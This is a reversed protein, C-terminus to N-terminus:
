YRTTWLVDLGGIGADGYVTELVWHRGLRYLVHAENTNGYETVGFVHVYGVYIRDTVNTGVEVKTAFGGAQAPTLSGPVPTTGQGQLQAQSVRQVRLVDIPLSPALRQALAGLLATSVASVASETIDSGSGPPAGAEGTLVLAVLQPQTYGPPESSFTLRPARAPGHVELAVLVDPFQRTLRLDLTPNAPPGDLWLVRARDITYRNGFLAISGYGAQIQGAMVTAADEARVVLNANVRVDVDKGRLEFDRVDATLRLREPLRAPAARPRAAAADRADVFRVEPLPSLRQLERQRELRPLRLRGGRVRLGLDFEGGKLAGRLTAEATVTAGPLVLVGVPVDTLGARADLATPTWGRLTVTGALRVEGGGDARGRLRTLTLRGPALRARVELGRLIPLGLMGLAGRTVALDGRWVPQAVTGGASLRATLLGGLEHLDPSIQRLFRLDLGQAELRAALAGAGGRGAAVAARVVGGGLQDAMASARLGGPDLSGEVTITAFPVGEIVPHLATLRVQAAPHALTGTVRADATAYGALRGLRPWATGLAALDVRPLTADAVVGADRLAAGPRALLADLGTLLRARADALHTRGLTVTATADVARPDAAARVFVAVGALGGVRGDRLLGTVRAAPRALDGGLHARLDLTGGTLRARARAAAPLAAVPLADVALDLRVPGASALRPAGRRRLRVPVRADVTVAGGAALRVAGTGVLERAGLRLHAEGDLEGPLIGARLRRAALDAELRPQLGARPRWVARGRVTGGLVALDLGDVAILADREWRVRAPAALRATRHRYELALRDVTVDAARPSATGRLALAARGAPGTADAALALRGARRSLDLRLVDVLPADPRVRVGRATATVRGSPDGVPGAVDVVADVATATGTGARLGRAQVKARLAAADPLTGTLHATVRAM